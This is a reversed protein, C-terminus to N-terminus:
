LFDEAYFESGLPFSPDSGAQLCLLHPFVENLYCLSQSGLFCDQNNKFSFLYFHQHQTFACVCFAMWCFFRKYKSFCIRAKKLIHSSINIQSVSREYNWLNFTDQWNFRFNSFCQQASYFERERGKFVGSGSVFFYVSKSFSFLSVTTKSFTWHSSHGGPSSFGM